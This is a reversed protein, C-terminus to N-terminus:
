TCQSIEVTVMCDKEKSTNQLGKGRYKGKQCKFSTKEKCTNRWVDIGYKCKKNYRHTHKGIEPGDFFIIKKYINIVIKETVCM